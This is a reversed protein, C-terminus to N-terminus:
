SETIRVDAITGKSLAKIDEFADRIDMIYVEYACLVRLSRYFSAERHYFGWALGSRLSPVPWGSFLQVGRTLRNWVAQYIRGMGAELAVQFPSEIGCCWCGM